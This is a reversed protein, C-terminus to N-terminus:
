WVGDRELKIIGEAEFKVICNDCVTGEPITEPRGNPFTYLHMDAVTSGYHGVLENGSIEAACHMAQNTEVWLAPYETKCCVCTVVGESM